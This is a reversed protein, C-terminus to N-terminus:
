VGGGLDLFHLVDGDKLGYDAVTKKLNLFGDVDEKIFAYSGDTVYEARRAVESLLGSLFTNPMAEVVLTGQTTRVTLLVLCQRVPFPEHDKPYSAYNNCKLEITGSGLHGIASSHIAHVAGAINSRDNCEKSKDADPPERCIAPAAINSRDNCEKSKDCTPCPIMISYSM